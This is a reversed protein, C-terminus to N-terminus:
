GHGSGCDGGRHREGVPCPAQFGRRLTIKGKPGFDFAFVRKVRVGKGAKWGRTKSWQLAKQALRLAAADYAASSSPSAKASKAAARKSVPVTGRWRLYPDVVSGRYVGAERDLGLRVEVDGSYRIAM